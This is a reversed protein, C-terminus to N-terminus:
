LTQFRSGWNGSSWGDQQFDKNSPAVEDMLTSLGINKLITRAAQIGHESPSPLSDKYTVEFGKKADKTLQLFTFHRPPGETYLAILVMESTMIQKLFLENEGGEDAKFGTPDQMQISVQPPVLMFVQAKAKGEVICGDQAPTAIPRVPIDPAAKPAAKPAATVKLWVDGTKFNSMLRARRSQLRPPDCM